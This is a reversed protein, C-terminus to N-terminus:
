SPREDFDVYKDTLEGNEDINRDEDHSDKDILVLCCSVLEELGLKKQASIKVAGKLLKTEKLEEDSLKDIKNFILLRKKSELELDKLVQEVTKIQERHNPDSVDIVHLLIDADKLEELTAMFAKMLTQPLKSIFGVTDTIIVERDKPFCLRRSYPDLTAFLEDKAYIETDCLANILTSKGANTYGVIALTPLANVKRSKRRLERQMKIKELERSLKALKDKVRRRDVELKTEGPGRGGIGGTLRSLGSQKKALRPLSYSLQAMEVQLKGERTVARQAFIDLILMTRDLIKLDTLDTINNLQSPSLDHDFIILEVGLSLAKLCVEELKGEGIITKPYFSQRWQFITEVVKVKASKALECLEAMSNQGAKKPGKYVGVLIAKEFFRDETAEHARSEVKEIDSIISALLDPFSDSIAGHTPFFKELAVIQTQKESTFSSGLYGLAMPGIHGDKSADIELVADLRLKELDTKFDHTLCYRKQGDDSIELNLVTPRAVALRLGRLRDQGGRLRGIDPLYLRTVDGIIVKKIEGKRDILLGVMRRSIFAAECLKKCAAHSIIELGGNHM